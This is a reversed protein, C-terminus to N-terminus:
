KALLYQTEPSIRDANRISEWEKIEHRYTDYLELFLPMSKGIFGNSSNTLVCIGIDESPIFAIKSSYNNVFGGHYIVTDDGNEVIRWGLGYYAKKVKPWKGFYKYRIYTRIHQTFLSDLTSKNIIEDNHGLLAKLWQGMDTISANVGGAAKTNYYNPSISLQFWDTKGKAHPFAKNSSELIGNYTSSANKMKLPTFIRNELLQHYSTGTNNELM